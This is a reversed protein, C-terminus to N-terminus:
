KVYCPSLTPGFSSYNHFKHDSKTYIRLIINPYHKELETAFGRDGDMGSPNPNNRPHNHDMGRIKISNAICYNAISQSGGESNLKNSTSIVNIGNKGSNEGVAARTFEVSVNDAIFSFIKEANDDGKVMIGYAPNITTQGSIPDQDYYVGILKNDVNSISGKEITVFNNNKKTGDHNVAFLRDPENNTPGIQIIKGYSTIGYDTDEMGNLDVRMVPNGSCYMYPSTSPYEDSLPDPSMWVYM